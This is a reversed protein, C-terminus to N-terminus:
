HENITINGSQHVGDGDEEEKMTRAISNCLDDGNLMVSQM